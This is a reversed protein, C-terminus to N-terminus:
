GGDKASKAADLVQAQDGRLELVQAPGGYHASLGVDICWFRGGCGSTIGGKQVTHGMVMRKAGLGKLADDLKACPAKEPEICYTRTWVPADDSTVSAPAKKSQGEMWASVERDIRTLGYRVHEPLVGGHVFLTDGVVVTVSRKALKRAYEGGPLFAAARAKARPSQSAVRPDTELAGASGGFAQFSGETVYRFDLDVNMIEHNGNLLVLAGGVQQAAAAVGELLDLVARDEDGRDIDDGTQVVVLDAGIWTDREDIAGALRLAKRTAALDGHLDGIAVVRPAAPLRRVEAPAASASVVPAASPRPPTTPEPPRDGDCGAVAFLLALRLSRTM